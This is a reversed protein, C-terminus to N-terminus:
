PIPSLIIPDITQVTTSESKMCQRMQPPRWQEIATDAGLCKCLVDVLAQVRRASGLYISITVVNKNNRTRSKIFVKVFPVLTTTVPQDPSDAPQDLQIRMVDHAGASEWSVM